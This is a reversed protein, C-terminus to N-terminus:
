AAQPGFCNTRGAPVEILHEVSRTRLQVLAVRRLGEHQESMSEVRAVQYAVPVTNPLVPQILRVFVVCGERLNSKLIIQKEADREWTLATKEVFFTESSDWGSVEVRYTNAKSHAAM